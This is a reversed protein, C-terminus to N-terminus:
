KNRSSDGVNISGVSGAKARETGAERESDLQKYLKTVQDELFKNQSELSGLKAENQAAVAKNESQLLKIANEFNSKVASTADSVAKETEKAVNARSEELDKRLTTLEINSISVKGTSKLYENVVNETNAKFSLDLEVNLQREKESYQTSLESISAEKNAVLLTLEESQAVLKNITATASSLESVAKTIQQAAQGLVLETTATARKTTPKGAM